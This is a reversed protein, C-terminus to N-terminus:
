NRVKEGKEEGKRQEKRGEMGGGGSDRRIVMNGSRSEKRECGSRKRAEEVEIGIRGTRRVRGGLGGWGEVERCGEKVGGSGGRLRALDEQLRRFCDVAKEM